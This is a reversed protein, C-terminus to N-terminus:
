VSRLISKVGNMENEVNTIKSRVEKMEQIYKMVKDLMPRIEMMERTLKDVKDCDNKSLMNSSYEVIRQVVSDDVIRSKKSSTTPTDVMKRKLKRPSPTPTCTSLTLEEAPWRIQKFYQFASGKRFISRFLRQPYWERKEVLTMRFPAYEDLNLMFQFLALAQRNLLTLKNADYEKLGIQNLQNDVWSEINGVKCSKVHNIVFHELTTKTDCEVKVSKSKLVDLPYYEQLIEGLESEVCLEEHYWSELDDFIDWKTSKSRPTFM